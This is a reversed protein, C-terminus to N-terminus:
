WGRYYYSVGVYQNSEKALQTITTASYDVYNNMTWDDNKIKEYRYDLRVGQMEDMAYETFLKLEVKKYTVTPLSPTGVGNDGGSGVATVYLPTQSKDESFQLNLGVKMLDNPEGKVGFGVAVNENKSDAGWEAFSTPVTRSADRSRQNLKTQDASIWGNLNWEDNLQYGADLSVLHRSGDIPGMTGAGSYDDKAGETILQLSLQETAYWDLALRLQDRKRDSWQIPNVYIEPDAAGPIWDSGDRDAHSLRVSANLSDSLSKRAGIRLTTEDTNERKAMNPEDTIIRKWKEHDVGATVALGPQVRYTADFNGTTTTRSTRQNYYDTGSQQYLLSQPTQDDRDDYRLKAKLTLQPMVRSVLGLNVRTNDIKGDLSTRNPSLPNSALFNDDQLDLVKSLKFSARTTDSLNYGGDFYLNHSKNEPPMAVTDSRTGVNDTYNVAKNPNDFMSLLYGGRLQLNETNYTLRADVEQTRYDIPEVIFQDYNAGFAKDGEKNEHRYNLDFRVAKSLHKGMGVKVNERQQKFQWMSQPTGAATNGQTTTGIGTVDSQYLYPNVSDLQDYELFYNWDGQRNREYRLNRNSLGINNGSVLTWTGTEDDRQKIDFDLLLNAGSDSRGNYRGLMTLDDSSYSAGVSVSSSPTAQKQIEEMGEQEEALVATSAASLAWISLPLIGYKFQKM